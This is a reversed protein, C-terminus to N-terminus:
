LVRHSAFPVTILNQYALKVCMSNDASKLCRSMAINTGTGRLFLVKSQSNKAM